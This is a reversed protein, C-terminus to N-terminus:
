PLKKLNNPTGIWETADDRNIIGEMRRTFVALLLRWLPFRGSAPMPCDEKNQDTM